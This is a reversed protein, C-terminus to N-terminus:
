HIDRTRVWFTLGNYRARTNEGQQELIVITGKSPITMSGHKLLVYLPFKLTVERQGSRRINVVPKPLPKPEESPSGTVVVAKPKEGGPHFIEATRVYLIESAGMGVDERTLSSLWQWGSQGFIWLLEGKLSVYQGPELAELLARVEPTAPIVHINASNRRIVPEDLTPSTQSWAYSRNAQTIQLSGAIEDKQLPGWGLTLDLTSLKAEPGTAYGMRGLVRGDLQFLAVPIMAHGNLEIPQNPFIRQLPGERLLEGPRTQRPHCWAWLAILGVIVLFVVFFVVLRLFRIM